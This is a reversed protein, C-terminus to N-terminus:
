ADKGLYEYASGYDSNFTLLLKLVCPFNCQRLRTESKFNPGTSDLVGTEWAKLSHYIATAFLCIFVENIQEVFDLDKYGIKRRSDFYRIFMADSLQPASFRM